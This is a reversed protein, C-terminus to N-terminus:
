CFFYKKKIFYQLQHYAASAAGTEMDTGAGHSLQENTHTDKKNGETTYKLIPEKRM